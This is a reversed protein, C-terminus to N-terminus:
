EALVQHVFQVAMSGEGVASAVRKVSGARVDGVAFVGPVSTELLYPARGDLPWDEGLEVGTKVFQKGDLALCGQLWTTNPCAGTMLFLHRIPHTESAAAEASRWRIRELDGNGELAEIETRPRLTIEPCAEIRSILYRSMTQSLGPGRVLLHVHKAYTSLFMAAQGASNGGGVVVVEEDDCLQAEVQTAGYYIGVGEFQALNPLPLKRYQAGSAVIISRAQVKAGDDLELTYPSKVCKLARATRAVAIQAGFKEAQVFARGALDQGSIGTPFGLYNEIRSSSGAQGGPANSEIVLVNLGESAGYVAAALGSPGAGVVILDYVEGEDIGANLGFCEAAEANSPNRLVLEGRCILVPIDTVRVDFQDLIAQVDPDREVDVYTHPHGNRSLFARLRLTDASHSSGILLADGVSHAVLYVRRLLFARLFIEGLTPDTQLIRQLNARGIELLSSAERARCRVLSRRGSLLNIEGTFSGRSAVRLVSEESGPANSSVAIIELSGSLVVFIGHSTDGLEFLIEGAQVQRPEGFAHLRALQADSLLPFMSDLQDQPEAM